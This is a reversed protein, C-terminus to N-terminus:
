QSIELADGIIVEIRNQLNGRKIYDKALEAKQKMENSQLM